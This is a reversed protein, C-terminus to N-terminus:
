VFICAFVCAFVYASIMSVSQSVQLGGQTMYGWIAKRNEYLKHKPSGSPVSVWAGDFFCGIVHLVCAFDQETNTSGMALAPVARSKVWTNFDM